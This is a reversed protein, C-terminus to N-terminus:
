CIFLFTVYHKSFIVFEYLSFCKANKSGNVEVYGFGFICIHIFCQQKSHFNERQVINGPYPMHLYHTCLLLDYERLNMVGALLFCASYFSAESHVSVYYCYM